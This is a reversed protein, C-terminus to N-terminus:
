MQVLISSVTDTKCMTNSNLCIILLYIEGMASKMIFYHAYTIIGRIIIIIMMIIIMMM